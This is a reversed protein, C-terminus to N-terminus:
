DRGDEPAPGENWVLIRGCHECLVLRDGIKIENVRQAPLGTFCGGCAGKRVPVVAVGNKGKAIREYRARLAASLRGAIEERHRQVAPILQENHELEMRMRNKMEEIERVRPEFVQQSSRLGASLEEELEMVKILEGEANSQLVKVNNIEALTAEYEKNTAVKLLKEELKKLKEALEELDSEQNKRRKSIAKLESEKERLKAGEQALDDDKTKIAAPIVDRSDLLRRLEKDKEQLEVLISLEETMAGSL